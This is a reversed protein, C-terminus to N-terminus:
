VGYHQIKFHGNITLISLDRRMCEWALVLCRIGKNKSYQILEHFECHCLIYLEMYAHECFFDSGFMEKNFLFFVMMLYQVGYIFSILITGGERSM